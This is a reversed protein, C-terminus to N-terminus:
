MSLLWEEEIKAADFRYHGTVDARPLYNEERRPQGGNHLIYPQGNKNRKDSVIGIHTDSGFIVIDGPQWEEIKDIDTTLHLAYHEFFVRLNSVRRFDINDDRATVKPYSEPRLRIDADVMDRLCYGARKFARWVVDTCVGIDDPPYGGAFYQDSYAPHNEADARAGLLLDTYDDIGNDNFDRESKVTGIGFHKATYTKHPLWGMYDAAFLGVTVVAAAAIVCVVAFVPRKRRKRRKM